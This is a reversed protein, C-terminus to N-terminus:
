ILFMEKMNEELLGRLVEPEDIQEAAIGAKTYLELIYSAKLIYDIEWGKRPASNCFKKIFEHVKDYYERIIKDM